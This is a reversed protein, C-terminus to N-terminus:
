HNRHTSSRRTGTREEQLGLSFFEPNIYTEPLHSIFHMERKMWTEQSRKVKQEFGLVCVNLQDISGGWNVAWPVFMAILKKWKSYMLIKELGSHRWIGTFMRSGECFWPAWEEVLNYRFEISHTYSIWREKVREKRGKCVNKSVFWFTFLPLLM